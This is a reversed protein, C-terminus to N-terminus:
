SNNYPSEYESSAVVRTKAVLEDRNNRGTSKTTSVCSLQEPRRVRRNETISITEM